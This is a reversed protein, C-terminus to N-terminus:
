GRMKDLLNSLQEAEDETLNKFMKDHQDIVASAKNVLSLGKDTIGIDVKRRNDPCTERTVFGKKLLRDILRTLDPTKDVMVSKIDGAACLEPHKGRLIRLVNFQQSTIDFKNMEQKMVDRFWSSTFLLNISVKQYVSKFSKQKIEDEIKM